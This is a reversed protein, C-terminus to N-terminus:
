ARSTSSSRAASRSGARSGTRRRPSRPPRIAASCISRRCCSRDRALRAARRAEDVTRAAVAFISQGHYQVLTTAFIPDDAVVPGYDNKGPVDKATLVAVVGPAARVKTLDISKIRAHARESMGIAAHLTGRVEPIDDTYIAEGTVHLHASDHPLPAGVGGALTRQPKSTGPKVRRV